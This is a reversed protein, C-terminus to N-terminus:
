EDDLRQLRTETEQDPGPSTIVTDIARLLERIAKRHQEKRTHVMQARVNLDDYQDFAASDSDARSSLERRILLLLAHLYVLEHKRM